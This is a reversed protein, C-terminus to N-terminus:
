FLSLTYNYVNNFNSYAKYHLSYNYQGIYYKSSSPPIIAVNNYQFKDANNIDFILNQYWYNDDNNTYLKNKYKVIQPSDYVFNIKIGTFNIKTSQNEVVKVNKSLDGSVFAKLIPQNYSDILLSYIKSYENSTPEFVINGYENNYYVIIQSPKNIHMNYSVTNLTLTVLCVTIVAVCLLIVSIIIRIKKTKM